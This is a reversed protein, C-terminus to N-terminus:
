FLFLSAYEILENIYPSERAAKLVQLGDAKPLRIDTIVVDFGELRLAQLAQEGDAAVTVQHGAGRLADGLTVAITKEDDALLIKM